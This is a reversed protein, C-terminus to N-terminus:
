IGKIYVSLDNDLTYAKKFEAAELAIKGLKSGENFGILVRKNNKRAQKVLVSHFAWAMRKKRHVPKVYIDWVILADGKLECSVFGFDSELMTINKEALKQAYEKADYDRTPYLETLYNQIQKFNM